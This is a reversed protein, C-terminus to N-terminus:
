CAGTGFGTDSNYHGGISTATGNTYATVVAQVCWNNDFLTFEARDSINLGAQRLYTNLDASAARRSSDDEHFGGLAEAFATAGLYGILEETVDSTTQLLSAVYDNGERTERRAAETCAQSQTRLHELLDQRQQLRPEPLTM